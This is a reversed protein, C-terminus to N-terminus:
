DHDSDNYYLIGLTNPGCHCTITAGAQTPEVRKFGEKLLREKVANVVDDPASSYTIFVLSRDPTSAEKLTDEVYNMVVKMMNGRYKHTSTMSGDKMIIKPKIHLLNAGFMALASCRGGKYLYNVTELVFSTQVMPLREMVKKVIEEPSLGKLTLKRAYIAQLAIATSLALTDIVYVNQFKKAAQITNQCASSIKSSLSFHIIADYGEDFLKQFHEEFQYQNVASTKPLSNTKKVYDFLEQAHVEGDLASTEGLILTFPVIRIDFEELMNKPLDITSEASIAIKMHKKREIM